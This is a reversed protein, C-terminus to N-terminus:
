QWSSQLYAMEARHLVSQDVKTHWANVGLRAIESGGFYGAAGGIAGGLIAGAPVTLWAFPGGFVGAESGMSAGLSAGTMTGAIGGVASILSLNRQRYSIRGTRYAYETDFAGKADVGVSVFFAIKGASRKFATSLSLSKDIKELSRAFVGGYRGNSKSARELAVGVKTNKALYNSQEAARIQDWIALHSIAFDRALKNESRQMQTLVRTIKRDTMAILSDNEIKYTVVRDTAPNLHYLEAFATYPNGSAKVFEEIEGVYEVLTPNGSKKMELLKKTIHEESLQVGNKTKNRRPYPARNTKVEVFRLDKIRGDRGRKIAIRDIGNESGNKVEEVSRFGRKILEDHVLTEGFGGLGNRWKRANRGQIPHHVPHDIVSRKQFEYGDALVFSSDLLWCVLMLFIIRNM